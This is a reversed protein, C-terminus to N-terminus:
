KKTAKTKIKKQGPISSRNGVNSLSELFGSGEQFGRKYIEACTM